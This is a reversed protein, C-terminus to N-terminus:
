LSINRTVVNNRGSEKAKYLAKDAAELLIHPTTLRTPVTSSVGCSVTVYNCVSSAEHVIKLELIQLRIMEALITAGEADTEPLIVVFEEGGYRALLDGPRKFFTLLSKAVTQLCVDGAQHGYTDNYRKFFDIDFIILSLPKSTRMVRRWEEELKTDFHRRNAVRTLGDYMAMQTLLKNAQQLAAETKKWETINRGIGLIGRIDGNIDLIPVKRTELVVRRGDSKYEVEEENISVQKASAAEIDKKRFFDALEGPVFDYDTKGLIEKETAGFFLEFENNCALYVGDTDKLWILDPITNVVTSLHDKTEQLAKEIQKRETIDRASAYLHAQGDLLVCKAHIEVDYLSGDKRRHTTEFTAQDSILRNIVNELDELPISADWDAVNLGKMEEPSYRLMSAFSQSFEVINGKADIIHIGDSATDLINKLRNTLTRQETIDRFSAIVGGAGETGNPDPVATVVLSVHLIRGDKRIFADEIERSMGDNLTKFVPCEEFPYIEGNVKHSHFLLHPSQGIIEDQQYGLMNLAAPNIFSCKGESDTGYVGEGLSTLLLQNKGALLRTEQLSHTLNKRSQCWRRGGSWLGLFGLIGIIGHGFLIGKQEGQLIDQFPGFPVSVSIGGRIDGVKYGQAEHCKLCAEETELPRMFRLVTGNDGEILEVKEEVGQEFSLLAKREWSDPANEPRIPKLSTIHGQVGGAEAGLEHVQRTMYAPNILTLNKGTTCVVDRDDLIALYPNPPTKKTPVVYVGGNDANWRRYLIDKDFTSKAQIRALEFVSSKLYQYNWILSVVVITLWLSIGGWLLCMCKDSLKVLKLM